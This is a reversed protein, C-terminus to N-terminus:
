TNGYIWERTILSKGCMDTAVMVVNGSVLRIALFVFRTSYALFTEKPVIGLGIIGPKVNRSFM